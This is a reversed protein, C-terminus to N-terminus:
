HTEQRARIPGSAESWNTIENTRLGPVLRVGDGVFAHSVGVGDDGEDPIVGGGWDSGGRLSHPFGERERSDRDM